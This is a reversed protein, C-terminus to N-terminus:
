GKVLDVSLVTGHIREEFLSKAHIRIHFCPESFLIQLLTGYRYYQLEESASCNIKLEISVSYLFPPPLLSCGGGKTLHARRRVNGTM